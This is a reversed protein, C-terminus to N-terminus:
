ISDTIITQIPLACMRGMLVWEMRRISWSQAKSLCENEKRRKATLSKWREEGDDSWHGYNWNDYKNEVKNVLHEEETQVNIHTTPRYTAAISSSGDDCKKKRVSFLIIFCFFLFFLWLIVSFFFRDWQGHHEDAASM